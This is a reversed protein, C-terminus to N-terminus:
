TYSYAGKQGTGLVTVLKIRECGAESEIIPAVINYVAAAGPEKCALWYTSGVFWFYGETYIIVGMGARDRGEGAAKGAATARLAGTTGDFFWYQGGPVDVHLNGEPRLITKNSYSGCDYMPPAHYCWTSTQVDAGVRFRLGSIEVPRGNIAPNSSQVQLTFPNGPGLTAILHLQDGAGCFYMDPSYCAEGCRLTPQGYLIPCLFNGDYCTYQSPYYPAPGCFHIDEALAGLPAIAGVALFVLSRLAM